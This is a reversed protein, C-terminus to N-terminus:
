EADDASEFLSPFAEPHADIYDEALISITEVHEATIEHADKSKRLNCEDHVCAINTFCDKGGLVVPIVHDLHVRSLDTIPEGCLYCIPFELDMKDRYIVDERTYPIGANKTLMKKRKNHAKKMVRKGRKTSRYAAQLEKIHEKNAEYYAKSHARKQERHEAYYKKYNRSSKTKQYSKNATERQCDKCNGTCKNKASSNRNFLYFKKVKKCRGCRKYGAPIPEDNGLELVDPANVYKIGEQANFVVGAEALRETQINDM